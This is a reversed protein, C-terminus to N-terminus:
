AKIADVAWELVQESNVATITMHSDNQPAVLWRGQPTVLVAAAIPEVLQHHNTKAVSIVFSQSPATIAEIMPQSLKHAALQQQASKVQGNLALDRADQYAFIPLSVNGPHAVRKNEVDLALALALMAALKIGTNLVQFQMVGAYPSAMHVVYDSMIYFNHQVRLNGQAAQVTLLKNMRNASTIINMVGQNVMAEGRENLSLVGHALLSRYAAGMLVDDMDSPIEFGPIAEQNAHRLLFALEDRSITVVIATEQAEM